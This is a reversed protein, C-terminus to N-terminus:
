KMEISNQLGDIDGGILREVDTRAKHYGTLAKIYRARAEFFTRQADLVV